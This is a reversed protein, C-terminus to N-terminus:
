GPVCIVGPWVAYRRNNRSSVKPANSASPSGEQSRGKKMKAAQSTTNRTQCIRSAMWLLAAAFLSGLANSASAALFEYFSM